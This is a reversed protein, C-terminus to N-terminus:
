TFNSKEAIDNKTLFESTNKHGATGFIRRLNLQSAIFVPM